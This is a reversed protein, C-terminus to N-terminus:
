TGCFVSFYGYNEYFPSLQGYSQKTWNWFNTFSNTWQRYKSTHVTLHISIQGQNGM